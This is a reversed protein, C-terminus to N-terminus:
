ATTDLRAALDDPSTVPLDCTFHRCVYATPRGGIEVRNELLGLSSAKGAAIVAAPLYRGRVAAVMEKVGESELDGAIAIQMPPALYFDLASLLYAFGLPAQPLVARVAHFAPVALKLYEENGTLFHLRLLGSTAASNGSPIPNDFFSRPRVVLDDGARSDFFSKAEVDHFQEVMEAVLGEAQGLFEVNFTAEYLSVLAEILFSHDELFALVASPGDRYSRVLKGDPRMQSLVFRAAREAGELWDRRGLVSGAEALARIALANWSVLIKTDKGPPVREERAARLRGRIGALRGEIEESGMGLPQAVQASSAAMTLITAGEFNGSATVGFRLAAIGADEHGLVDELQDPTWVYFKGEVGESDADQASYFGGAPDQMERLLYDLTEEVVRRFLPEGTAQYAHLYVCALLANDYLMKEFHPVVWSADVSYRHFGGGIQDYIGGVAMRTLTLRVAALADDSSFRKWVRLLWDLGLPQPFKPAAGFGGETWDVQALTASAAAQLIGEDLDGSTATVSQARRIYEAIGQASELVENRRETYASAVGALV